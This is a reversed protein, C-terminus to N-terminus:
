RGMNYAPRKVVIRKMKNSQSIRFGGGNPDRVLFQVNQGDRGQNHFVQHIIQGNIRDGRRVNRAIVSVGKM